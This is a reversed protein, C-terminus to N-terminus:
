MVLVADQTMRFSGKGKLAASGEGMRLTCPGMTILPCRALPVEASTDETFNVHMHSDPHEQHIPSQCSEMGDTYTPVQYEGIRDRDNEQADGHSLQNHLATTAPVPISLASSFATTM